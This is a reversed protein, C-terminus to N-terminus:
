VRWPARMTRYLMNNAEDDGEFREAGADWRVPRGLRLCINACHAITHCRQAAEPNSVPQQRSRMCRLFNRIHPKQIIYNADPPDLGALVSEPRADIAGTDSLFIWGQDGIFMLGKRGTDMNLRLGDNYRSRIEYWYPINNIGGESRFEAEGEYEVPADSPDGRLWQVTEIFHPGMDAVAGAGTDWNLRWHRVRDESYPAWPAQGLWRDYDFAEPDPQQQPKAFSNRKWGGTAGFSLRVTHLRGIRGSHITNVLFAYGPNSRRQTGCQWVTGHQRTVNVLQRGEAITLCFPKECYVDKRAQAALSSMVAHWRDGTGIVVADIDKRELVEEHFRTATCDSTGYHGDVLQKALERRDAFLDCVTLVRVDEQNMFEQINRRNRGGMGIGAVAIRDSPPIAGGLGLASAPVVLPAVAANAFRRRTLHRDLAMGAKTYERGILAGCAFPGAGWIAFQLGPLAASLTPPHRRPRSM